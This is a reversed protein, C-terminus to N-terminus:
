KPLQRCSCFPIHVRHAYGNHPIDLNGRRGVLINGRYTLSCYFVAPVRKGVDGAHHLGPSLEPPFETAALEVGCEM